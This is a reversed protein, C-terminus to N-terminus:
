LDGLWLGRSLWGLKGGPAEIENCAMMAMLSSARSSAERRVRRAKETKGGLGFVKESSASRATAASGISVSSM